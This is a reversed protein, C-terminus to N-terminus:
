GKRVFHPMEAPIELIIGQRDCVIVAGPFKDTWHMGGIRGRTTGHVLRLLRPLRSFGAGAPPVYSSGFTPNM